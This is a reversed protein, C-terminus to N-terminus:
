IRAAARVSTSPAMRAAYHGLTADGIRDAIWDDEADLELDVDGDGLDHQGGEDVDKAQLAAVEEEDDVEDEEDDEEDEEDDEEDEEEDEEAEEDLDEEDLEAAEDEEELSDATDDTDRQVAVNDSSATSTPDADIFKPDDEFAATADHGIAEHLAAESDTAISSHTRAM